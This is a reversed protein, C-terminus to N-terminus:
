SPYQPPPEQLEQAQDFNRNKYELELEKQHRAMDVHLASLQRESDSQSNRSTGVAPLDFSAMVAASASANHPISRARSDHSPLRAPASFPDHPNPLAPVDQMAIRQPGTARSLTSHRNQASVPYPNQHSGLPAASSIHASAPYATDLRRPPSPPLPNRGRSVVTQPPLDRSVETMVFASDDDAKEQARQYRRKLNYFLLVALILFFVIGVALGAGAGTSLGKQSSNSSSTNSSSTTSSQTDSTSTFTSSSPATIVVPPLGTPTPGPPTLPSLSFAM